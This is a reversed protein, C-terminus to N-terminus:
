GIPEADEIDFEIQDAVTEIISEVFVQWDEDLRSENWKQWLSFEKESIFAAQTSDCDLSFRMLRM